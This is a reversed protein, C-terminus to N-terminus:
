LGRTAKISTVLAWPGEAWRVFLVCTGSSHVLVRVFSSKTLSFFQLSFVFRLNSRVKRLSKPLYSVGKFDKFSNEVWKGRKKMRTKTGSAGFRVKFYLRQKPSSKRCFSKAVVQLAQGQNSEENQRRNRGEKQGERRSDTLM